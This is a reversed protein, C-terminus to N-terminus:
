DAMQSWFFCNKKGSFCNLHLLLERLELYRLRSLMKFIQVQLAIKLWSGRYYHFGRILSPTNKVQLPRFILFRKFLRKQHDLTYPFMTPVNRRDTGGHLKANVLHGMKASKRYHNGHNLGAALIKGFIRGAATM